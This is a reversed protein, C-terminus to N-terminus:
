RPARAPDPAPWGPWLDVAPKCDTFYQALNFEKARGSIACMWSDILPVNMVNIDLAMGSGTANALNRLPVPAIQLTSRVLADKEAVMHSFDKLNALLDNIAPQDGMITNITNVLSTAGAFLRQVAARRSVIEGLLDRGQIVLSGLDAKQDRIMATVTDVSRLLSGIQDRRASIIAALSEVNDLAQPLAEPVGNLSQSLTNLSEAFRDADVKEFTTTADALTAQLDYPVSTNALGIARHDLEGTGAPSLELYRSGLLTTLKIAARTDRGLHVSKRVKFKVIVRDGALEVGSVGGVSIGAVTVQDGAHIQAAQLFEGQYGTQGSSVRGVGVVLVAVVVAAVALSITGLWIKNYGEIPRKLRDFM